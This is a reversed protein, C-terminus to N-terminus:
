SGTDEDLAEAGPFHKCVESYDCEARLAEELVRIRAQAELLEKRRQELELSQEHVLEELSHKRLPKLM